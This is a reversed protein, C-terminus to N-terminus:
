SVTGSGSEDVSRPSIDCAPILYWGVAYTIIAPWIATAVGIFVFILRVITPDFSYQDAIGACIGAIKKESTLRYLKKM